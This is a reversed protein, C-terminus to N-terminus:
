QGSPCGCAGRSSAITTLDDIRDDKLYTSLGRRDVMTRGEVWCVTSRMTPVAAMRPREMAAM